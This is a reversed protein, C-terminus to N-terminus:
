LRLIDNLFFRRGEENVLITGIVQNHAQVRKLGDDIERDM